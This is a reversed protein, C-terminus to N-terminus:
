PSAARRGPGPGSPRAAGAYLPVVSLLLFFSTLSGFDAVFLLLLPRTVIPPRGSTARGAATDRDAYTATM